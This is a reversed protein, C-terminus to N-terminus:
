YHNAQIKLADGKTGTGNSEASQLTQTEQPKGSGDLPTIQPHIGIVEKPVASGPTCPKVALCNNPEASASNAPTAASKANLWYAYERYESPSITEGSKSKCGNRVASSLVAEQREENPTSATANGAPKEIIDM